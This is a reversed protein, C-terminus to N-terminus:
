AQANNGGRLAERAKSLGERAAVPDQKLDSPKGASYSLSGDKNQTVTADMEAARKSTAQMSSDSGGAFSGGSMGSNSSENISNNLIQDQRSEKMERVVSSMATAAVVMAGAASSMNSSFSSTGFTNVGSHHGVASALMGPVTGALRFMLFSAVAIILMQDILIEGEGLEEITMDVFGKGIGAIFILGMYQVGTGVIKRLHNIAIDSTWPMGAFGMLFVGGYVLFTGGILLEVMRFAIDALFFLIVVCLLLAFVSDVPNWVSSQSWVAKFLEFGGDLMNSPNLTEPFGAAKNAMLGFSQLISTTFATFNQIWYMWFGLVAITKVFEMLVQEFTMGGIAGVCVRWIFGFGSLAGFLILAYDTMKDGWDASATQFANLVSGILGDGHAGAIDASAVVPFLLLLFLIRKM